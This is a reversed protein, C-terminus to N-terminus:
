RAVALRKTVTGTRTHIRLLYIGAPWGRLNLTTVYGSAPRDFVRKGAENYAEIRTLGFSSTVQAQEFAPNPMVNVYRQLLEVSAIGLTDDPNVQTSDDPNGSATDPPVMIPFMYPDFFLPAQEMHSNQYHYEMAGDRYWVILQQGEILHEWPDQPAFVITSVYPYPHYQHGDETEYIKKSRGTICVYFSDTIRVPSDYYLEYVPVAGVPYEPNISPMDIDFWYAVPTDRLHVLLSDGVQLLSNPGVAQYLGLYEYTSDLSTDALTYTHIPALSAAIGYVTLTDKTEFWKGYLVGYDASISFYLFDVNGSDIWSNYFCNSKPWASHITDQAQLGSVGLLMAAIIITKKM